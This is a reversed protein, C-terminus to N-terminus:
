HNSQLREESVGYFSDIKELDQRLVPEYRDRLPITVKNKLARPDEELDYYYNRRLSADVIFLEKLDKSLIGFVPLYSSMFFYHDPQKCAQEEQTRTFLPCGIMEDRRIPSHGLLYYLTPTIEHLSMVRNMNWVMGAKQQEPVHIIFPVEIVEPTVFSVHGERGMEGLSEGHDATVIIISNDYLGQKKLFSMFEGFIRDVREVASAYADDFGPHSRIQLDGKHWALSLTHVNAPQAFAFIPHEPDKRRALDEELESIVLGFEKQQKDSLDTNLGTITNSENMLAAVIPNYSIYSHYSDVNLMRQLNNMRPLPRPFINNIQQFGSWIAPDALATGAYPSYAHQFIVSDQAFAQMAPTFNVAPNYASVYDRRLADIVLIFINPKAIRAPKLDSTLPVEPAAIVGRIPAHASLFKYWPDYQDDQLVPKVTQQIAFFSGDYIAYQELLNGLKGYDASQRIGALSVICLLSLAILSKLSHNHSNHGFSVFFRLLLAWLIIASISSLVHEWDIKVFRIAFIYFFILIALFALPRLAWQRLRSSIRNPSENMSTRQDQAALALNAAFLVIVLPFLLAYFTAQTGNFGLLAFIIKRIILALVLWAAISRAVFQIPAPHTFRAAIMRIWELVVFVTVFIALHAAISIAIAGPPVPQGAVKLRPLAALTYLLSVAVGAIVFARLKLGKGIDKQINDLRAAIQVFSVWAIPALCAIAEVYTHEDGLPTRVNPGYLLTWGYFFTLGPGWLLTIGLVVQTIVLAAVVWRFTEKKRGLDMFVLAAAFSPFYLLRAVLMLGRLWGYFPSNLAGFFNFTIYCLILFLSDLILVAGFIAQAAFRLRAMTGASVMRGPRAQSQLATSPTFSIM